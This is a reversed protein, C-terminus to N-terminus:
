YMYMNINAIFIVQVVTNVSQRDESQSVQQLSHLMYLIPTKNQLLPNLKLKTKTQVTDAATPQEDEGGETRYVDLATM